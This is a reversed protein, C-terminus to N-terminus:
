VCAFDSVNGMVNGERFDDAFSKRAKTEPAEPSIMKM